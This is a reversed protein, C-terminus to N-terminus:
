LLDVLWEIGQFARYGLYLAIAGLLVKLHWPIPDLETEDDDAAHAKGADVQHGCGPCAGDALM